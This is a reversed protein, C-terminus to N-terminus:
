LVRRRAQNLVDRNARLLEFAEEIQERTEFGHSLCTREISEGVFEKREPWEIHRDVHAGEVYFTAIGLTKVPDLDNARYFRRADACSKAIYAFAKKGQQTHMDYSAALLGGIIEDGPGDAISQVVTPTEPMRRYLCPVMVGLKAASYGYTALHKIAWPLDDQKSVYERWGKANPPSCRGLLLLHTLDRSKTAQALTGVAAFLARRTGLKARFRGNRCAELVICSAEVDGLGIDEFAIVRLRQWTYSPDVALLRDAAIIAAEVKGRRIAKQLASALVWRESPAPASLPIRHYEETARYLAHFVESESAPLKQM